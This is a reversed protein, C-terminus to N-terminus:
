VAAAADGAEANSLVPLEFRGRVSASYLDKALSPGLLTQTATAGQGPLTDLQVVTYEGEVVTRAFTQGKTAITFGHLVAENSKTPVVFVTGSTYADLVPGRVDAADWHTLSM